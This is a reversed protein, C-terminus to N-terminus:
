RSEPLFTADFARTFLLALSHVSSGQPFAVMYSYTASLSSQRFSWVLSALASVNSGQGLQHSADISLNGFTTPGLRFVDAARAFVQRLHLSETSSSTDVYGGAFSLRTRGLPSTGTLTATFTDNDTFMRGTVPNLTVTTDTTAVPAFFVNQEVHTFSVVPLLYLPYWASVDSSVLAGYTRMSNGASSHDERVTYFANAHVPARPIALQLLGNFGYGYLDGSVGDSVTSYGLQGTGALGATVAGWRGRTAIGQSASVADVTRNLGPAIYRTETAAAGEGLLLPFPRLDITSGLSAQNATEERDPGTNTSYGYQGRLLTGPSLQTLLAGSASYTTFADGPLGGLGTTRSLASNFSARTSRSLYVDDNLAALAMTSRPENAFQQDQWTAVASYRHLASTGYVSGTVADSSERGGPGDDTVRQARLDARPLVPSVLQAFGQLSTISTVASAQLNSGAVALGHGYALTIPLVSGSFLSLSSGYGLSYTKGRSPGFTDLRLVLLYTRFKVFRSQWIWGSLSLNLGESLQHSAILRDGASQWTGVYSVLANGSLEYEPVEGLFVQARTRLPSTAIALLAVAAAVRLLPSRTM